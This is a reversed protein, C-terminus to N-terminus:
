IQADIGGNAVIRLDKMLEIRFISVYSLKWGRIGDSVVEVPDKSGVPHLSGPGGPRIRGPLDANAYEGNRFSASAVNLHGSPSVQISNVPRGVAAAQPDSRSVRGARAGDEM